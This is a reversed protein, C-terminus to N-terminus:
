VSSVYSTKPSIAASSNFWTLTLLKRLSDATSMHNHPWSPMLM